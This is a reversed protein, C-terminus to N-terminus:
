AGLVCNLIKNAVEWKQKLDMEKFENCMWIGHQKGCLKCNRSKIQTETKFSPNSRGFFTFPAERSTVRTESRSTFGQITEVVRTQFGTEQTDRLVEM